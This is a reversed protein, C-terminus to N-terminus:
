TNLYPSDFSEVFLGSETARSIAIPCSVPVGVYMYFDWGFHLFAEDGILKCWFQDRLVLRAVEAIERLTCVHGDAVTLDSPQSGRANELSDIALSDVGSESLFSVAANIYANEVALYQPETLVGDDFSEGIQSHMIWENRTYAGTADRYQPDYKTVRHQIM